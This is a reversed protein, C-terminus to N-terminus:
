QRHIEPIEDMGVILLQDFLSPQGALSTSVASRASSGAQLTITSPWCGSALAAARAAPASAKTLLASGGSVSRRVNRPNTFPHPQPRPGTGCGGSM